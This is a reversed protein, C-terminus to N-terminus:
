EERLLPEHILVPVPTPAAFRLQLGANMLGSAVDTVCQYEPVYHPEDLSNSAPKKQVRESSQGKTTVFCHSTCQSLHSRPRLPLDATM